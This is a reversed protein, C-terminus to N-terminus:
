QEEGENIFMTIVLVATGVVVCIDAVNFIPFDIFMFNFMDVVFGHLVRDILNGIAGAVILVLSVKTMKDVKSIKLTRYYWILVGVILIPLVVLFLRNGQMIGFAAGRNELYRLELIGPILTTPELQPGVSYKVVQDLVVLTVGFILAIM